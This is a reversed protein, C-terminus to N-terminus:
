RLATRRKCSPQAHAGERAAAYAFIRRMLLAPNERDQGGRRWKSPLKDPDNCLYKM